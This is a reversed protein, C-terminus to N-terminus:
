YPPKYGGLKPVFPRHVFPPLINERLYGPQNAPVRPAYQQVPYVPNNYPHKVVPAYPNNRPPIVFNNRPPNRNYIPAEEPCLLRLERELEYACLGDRDYKGHSFNNRDTNQTVLHKRKIGTINNIIQNYYPKCLEKFRTIYKETKPFDLMMFTTLLFYLADLPPLGTLKNLSTMGFDILLGGLKAREPDDSIICNGPKIDNHLFGGKNFAACNEATKKVVDFFKNYDSGIKELYTDLPTGKEMIIIRLFESNPIKTDTTNFIKCKTGKYFKSVQDPFIGSVTNYINEETDSADMYLKIAVPISKNESEWLVGEFAMGYTGGGLFRNLDVSYESNDLCTDRVKGPINEYFRGNYRASSSILKRNKHQVDVYNNSRHDIPSNNRNRRM